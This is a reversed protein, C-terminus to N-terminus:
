YELKEWHLTAQKDAFFTTNKNYLKHAHRANLLEMAQSIMYAVNKPTLPKLQLYTNARHQQEPSVNQISILVGYNLWPDHYPYLISIWPHKKEGSIWIRLWISNAKGNTNLSVTWLFDTGSVHIKRLKNEM